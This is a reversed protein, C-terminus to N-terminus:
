TGLKKLIDTTPTRMKALPGGRDVSAVLKRMALHTYLGTSKPDLHGMLQQRTLIDVDSEALETGYLHRMAHPHLQDEPIGAQQGYRKVMAIVGRRNFRRREGKYQAAACSRNRTTVFLVLDGNELTRDISKLEAHELYVRLQLDAELPVPVMRQRGGKEFVRVFLRPKGDIRQELVDSANLGVLGSVRIGCGVLLQLMAGDRVGVFTTFDPRWMIKEASALSMVKPLPMSARPYPLGAAPSARLHGRDVCWRYFDRVAAVYPRRSMAVVNRKALWAGAFAILEDSSATLLSRGDGLFELLREIALRYIQSTRSSRGKNHHRFDLWAQVLELDRDM